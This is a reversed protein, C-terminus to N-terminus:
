AKRFRRRAAGFATLAGTGLLVLSSPEPTAGITVDVPINYVEAELFQSSSPFVPADVTGTFLQPGDLTVDISQTFDFVELDYSGPFAIHQDAAYFILDGSDGNSFTVYYAAYDYGGGINTYSPAPSFTTNMTIGDASFTIATDAHAAVPALLALSAAVYILSRM